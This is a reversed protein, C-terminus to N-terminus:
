ARKVVTRRPPVARFYVYDHEGLRPLWVGVSPATNAEIAKRDPAHRLPFIFYHESESLVSVPLRSPRQCGVYVPCGISRGGSIAWLMNPKPHVSGGNIAYMDDVILTQNGYDLICDILSEWMAPSQERRPVSLVQAQGKRYSEVRPIPKGHTDKVPPFDGKPDLIVPPYVAYRPILERALLRTKGSGSAGTIFVRDTPRIDILARPKRPQTAM